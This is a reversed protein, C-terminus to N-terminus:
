RTTNLNTLVTSLLRNYADLLQTDPKEKAIEASINSVLADRLAEMDVEKGRNGHNIKSTTPNM